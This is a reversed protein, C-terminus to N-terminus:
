AISMGELLKQEEAEAKEQAIKRAKEEEAQLKATLQEKL